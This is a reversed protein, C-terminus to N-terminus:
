KKNEPDSTQIDLDITDLPWYYVCIGTKPDPAFKSYWRARPAFTSFHITSRRCFSAQPCRTNECHTYDHKM